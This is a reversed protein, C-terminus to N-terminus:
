RPGYVQLARQVFADVLSNAVKDFVPSVVMQLTSSSFAYRLDLSVKSAQPGAGADSRSGDGNGNGNGNGSAAPPGIPEFRWDGELISFPGDVLSMTMREPRQLVNRTTFAHRMGAIGLGLRATVSGPATGEAPVEQLVQVANCWPLFEPYRRVDAVLDYMEVPRYWLLVSKRVQKM